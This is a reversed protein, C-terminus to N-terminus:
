VQEPEGALKRLLRNTEQQEKLIGVLLVEDPKRGQIARGTALRIDDRVDLIKAAKDGFGM